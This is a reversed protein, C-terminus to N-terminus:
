WVERVVPSITCEDVIKDFCDCCVQLYVEEGDHTSGYGITKHIIYREQLDWENLAGGCYNCHKVEPM